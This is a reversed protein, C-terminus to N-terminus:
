AAEAWDYDDAVSYAEELDLIVTTSGYGIHISSVSNLETSGVAINFYESQGATVFVSESVGAVRVIASEVNLSLCGISDLWRSGVMDSMAYLNSTFATKNLSVINGWINDISNRMTLYDGMTPAIFAPLTAYPVEASPAFGDTEINGVDLAGTELIIKAIDGHEHKNLIESFDDSSLALLEHYVKDIAKKLQDSM